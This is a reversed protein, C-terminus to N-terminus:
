ILMRGLRQQIQEGNLFRLPTQVVQMHRHYSVQFIATGHVGQRLRQRLKVAVAEVEDGRIRQCHRLVNKIHQVFFANGPAQM